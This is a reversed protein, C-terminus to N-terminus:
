VILQGNGLYLTWRGLWKASTDGWSSYVYCM